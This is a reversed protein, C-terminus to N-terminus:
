RGATPGRSRFTRRRRVRCSSRTRERAVASILRRRSTVASRPPISPSGSMALAGPSILRASMEPTPARWFEPTASQEVVEIMTVLPHDINIAPQTVEELVINHSLPHSSNGALAVTLPDASLLVRPELLEFALKARSRRQEAELQRQKRNRRTSSGSRFSSFPM